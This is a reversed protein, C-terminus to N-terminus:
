VFTDWVSWCHQSVCASPDKAPFFPHFSHARSELSKERNIVFSIVVVGLPSGLYRSSEIVFGVRM